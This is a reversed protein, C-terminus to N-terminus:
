DVLQAIQNAVHMLKAPAPGIVPEFNNEPAGARSVAALGPVQDPWQGVRAGCPPVFPLQLCAVVDLPENRYQPADVLAWGAQLQTPRLASHSALPRCNAQNSSVIGSIM